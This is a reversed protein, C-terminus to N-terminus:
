KLNSTAPLSSCSSRMSHNLILDLHEQHMWIDLEGTKEREEDTRLNWRELLIRNILGSKTGLNMAHKRRGRVEKIKNPQTITEDKLRERLAVLESSAKSPFATSNLRWSSRTYLDTSFPTSLETLSPPILTNTTQSEFYHLLQSRTFGERLVKVIQNYESVTPIGSRYQLKSFWSSKIQEMNADVRRPNVLGNEEDVRTLMESPSMIYHHGDTEELKDSTIDTHRAEFSGMQLITSKEGLAVVELSDKSHPQMLKWPNTPVSLGGTYRVKDKSDTQVERLCNFFAFSRSFPPPSPLTRRRKRLRNRYLLRYQCRLCM